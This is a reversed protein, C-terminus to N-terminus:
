QTEHAQPNVEQWRGNDKVYLIGMSNWFRLRATTHGVLAQTRLNLSDVLANQADVQDQARARGLDALLDQEEVRRENTKVGV